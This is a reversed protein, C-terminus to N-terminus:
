KIEFPATVGRMITLLQWCFNEAFCFCRSSEIKKALLQLKDNAEQQENKMNAICILFFIGLIERFMSPNRRKRSDSLINIATLQKTFIKTCM